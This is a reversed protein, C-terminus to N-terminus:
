GVINSPAVKGGIGPWFEPAGDPTAVDPGRRVIKALRADRDGAAIDTPISLM